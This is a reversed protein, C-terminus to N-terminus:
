MGEGGGGELAVGHQSLVQELRQKWKACTPHARWDRSPEWGCDKDDFPAGDLAPDDSCCGHESSCLFNSAIEDCCSCSCLGSAAQAERLECQTSDILHPCPTRFRCAVNCFHDLCGDAHLGPGSCQVVASGEGCATCAWGDFPCCTDRHAPWTLPVLEGDNRMLAGDNCVGGELWAVDFCALGCYYALKCPSCRLSAALGCRRCRGAIFCSPCSAGERRIERWSRLVHRVGWQASPLALEGNPLYGSELDPQEAPLPNATQRCRKKGAAASAAAIRAAHAASVPERQFKHSPPPPLPPPPAASTTPTPADASSEDPEAASGVSDSTALQATVAPLLRVQAEASSGEKLRFAPLREDDVIVHVTASGKKAPRVEFTVGRGLDRAEIEKARPPMVRDDSGAM